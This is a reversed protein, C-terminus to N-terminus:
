EGINTEVILAFPDGIRDPVPVTIPVTVMEHIRYGASTEELVFEVRQGEVLGIYGSNETDKVATHRVLINDGTDRRIFGYGKEADFSEVVGQIREAM